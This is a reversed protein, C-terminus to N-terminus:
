STERISKYCSILRMADNNWNYLEEASKRGQIGMSIIEEQKFSRIVEALNIHNGAIFIRGSNSNEVISSLPKVDSVIIPKGHCMYEFIKNPITTQTLESTEHPIICIDAEALITLMRHKDSMWDILKVSSLDNSKVFNEIYKKESCGEKFGVITLSYENQDLLSFARILTRLGRLKQISGHYLLNIKNSQRSELITYLYPNKTNSVLYIKDSAIGKDVLRQGNESAVVIIKDALKSMKKEYNYYRSSNDVIKSVIMKLFSKSQHHLDILSPYNEHFDLILKSRLRNCLQYSFKSWLLDHCHVIDIRDLIDLKALQEIVDNYLRDNKFSYKFKFREYKTLFVDCEILNFDIISYNTIAINEKLRDVLIYVDFGEKELEKVEQCVRVDPFDQNLVMLVKRNM